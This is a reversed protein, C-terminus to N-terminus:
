WVNSSWVMVKRSRSVIACCRRGMASTAEKKFSRTVRLDNSKCSLAYSSRNSTTNKGRFRTYKDPKIRLVGVDTRLGNWHFTSPQIPEIKSMEAHCVAAYLPLHPMQTHCCYALTIRSLKTAVSRM